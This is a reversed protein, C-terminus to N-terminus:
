RKKKMDEEANEREKNLERRSAIVTDYNKRCLLSSITLLAKRKKEKLKIEEKAKLFNAKLQQKEEETISLRM